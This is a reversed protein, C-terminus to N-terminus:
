WLAATIGFLLDFHRQTALALLSFFFGSCDIALFVFDVGAARGRRKLLELLLPVFGSIDLACSIVGVAVIPGERTPPPALLIILGVEIGAFVLALGILLGVVNRTKWQRFLTLSQHL